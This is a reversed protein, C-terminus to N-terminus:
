HPRGVDAAPSLWAQGCDNRGVFKGRPRIIFNAQRQEIVHAIWGAARSLAILGSAVEGGVNLARCAIVFAEEITFHTRLSCHIGEVAELAEDASRGADIERLIALLCKARPDGDPYLPHDFGPPTASRAAAFNEVGACSLTKQSLVNEIQDCGLGTVSGYLVNLGAGVCGFLDNGVSAAIRAAFTAPTFEHDAFLILMADICRRIKESPSLGLGNALIAAISDGERIRAASKQPGLFGFTAAMSTLLRRALRLSEQEGLAEKGDEARSGECLVTQMLLHRIHPHSAMGALAAQARGACFRVDHGWKLRTPRWEGSWLFEAVSEFSHGETALDTAFRGRYRPGGETIETISTLLIPEGWHVAAEAAAGHGSRAVSRARIREVDERFYLSSRGEPHPISRILGRSVYSYLTQPKVGLLGTAEACSLYNVRVM